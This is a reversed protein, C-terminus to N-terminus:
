LSLTVFIGAGCRFEDFGLGSRGLAKYSRFIASVVHADIPRPTPAAALLSAFQTLGLQPDRRLQLHANSPHKLAANPPLHPALGEAVPLAEAIAVVKSATHRGVRKCCRLHGREHM